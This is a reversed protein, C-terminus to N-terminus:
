PPCPTITPTAAFVPTLAPTFSPLPTTTPVPPVTPPSTPSPTETTLPAGVVLTAGTTQSAITAANSDFLKVSSFSILTLGDGVANFTISALVGDAVIVNDAPCPLAVRAFDITGQVNDVANGPGGPTFGPDLLSGAQIQVGATQPTADRVQLKAPDFSLHAEAGCLHPAGEIRIDATVTGGPRVRPASLVLRVTAQQEAVAMQMASVTLSIAICAPLLLRTLGWIRNNM